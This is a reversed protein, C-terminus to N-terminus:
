EKGYIPTTNKVTKGNVKSYTTSIGQKTDHIVLQALGSREYMTKMVEGCYSCVSEGRVLIQMNQGSTLGEDYARQILAVEAHANKMTLNPNQSDVKSGAALTPKNQRQIDPRATQNTDFLYKGGINTEATVTIPAQAGKLTAGIRIDVQQLKALDDALQKSDGIGISKSAKSLKGIPILEGINTPIVMTSVAYTLSGVLAKPYVGLVEYNGSSAWDGIADDLKNKAQQAAKIDGKKYFIVLEDLAAKSKDDLYKKAAEIQLLAKDKFANNQIATSASNAAISVDYGAYASVTGAILQGYTEIKLKEQDSIFTPSRGDLLSEALVEGVAAGIARSGCEDQIAGAACASVAHALKHLFYNIDGLGKIETAMQGQVVGALGSLLAQEINNSLDGGDIATHVLTSGVSNTFNNIIRDSLLASDPKLNLVTGVQNLLGATVVSTVLGKVSDKSGLEKLTAAVDGGNNILSVSAQSALTAVAAQAGAGLAASGTASAVSTAAATGAGSTLVTVIIVILAAGAGTLGQSKYDWEKQTLILSNWDVDNRNLLDKLYENGPQNALKLAEEKVEVKYQDQEGIPIQVEIGGEAKFVPPTPGNFRPLQATETISGKDQMSQWVVSNSEKKLTESVLNSAGELFITGGSEINAGELYNFETGKLRTDFGAKTGVYNATLVAPLESVVDRTKTTNSTNYKIGLFSSKKTIDTTNLSVDKATLLNIDGGAQINIKGNLAELQTSYMDISNRNKGVMNPSNKEQSIININNAILGVSEGLSEESTINTITTKKKGYWTRKTETKTSKNFSNDVAVDFIINKYAEINIDKASSVLTGQLILNDTNQKGTTKITVGNTGNLTTAKIPSFWKYNNGSLAGQEYSDSYADVIISGKIRGQKVSNESDAIYKGNINHDVGDLTGAAELMLKGNLSNIDSGSISLGKNSILKIDGLNSTIKSGLHNYGSMSGTTFYNLINKYLGIENDFKEISYLYNHYKMRMSNVDKFLEAVLKDSLESESEAVFEGSNIKNALRIFINEAEYQLQAKEELNDQLYKEREKEINVISEKINDTHLNSFNNRIGDIILDGSTSVISVDKNSSLHAGELKVSEGYLNIGGHLTALKVVQESGNGANGGYGILTLADNKSILEIDGQAKINIKKPDITLANNTQISLDGDLSNLVEDNRLLDSGTSNLELSEAVNLSEGAELLIAGGNLKLNQSNINKGAIVSLTGQSDVKSERSSNINLNINNKSNLATHEGGLIIVGDLSLDDKAFVENNGAANLTTDTLTTKNLSSSVLISGQSSNIDTSLATVSGNGISAVNVGQAGLLISRNLGSNTLTVNKDAMLSLKGASSTAKLGNVTLNGALASVNINGGASLNSETNLILNHETATINLDKNSRLETDVIVGKGLLNIEDNATFKTSSIDVNGNSRIDLKGTFVTADPTNFWKVDEQAQINVAGVGNNNVLVQDLSVADNSSINVSGNGATDFRNTQFTVNKLSTKSSGEDLSLRVPDEKIAGKVANVHLVYTNTRLDFNARGNSDTYKSAIVENTSGDTITVLANPRTTLSLPYLRGKNQDIINISNDDSTSLTSNVINSKNESFINLGKKGYVIPSNQIDVDNDAFLNVVGNGALSAGSSIKLNNGADIFIDQSNNQISANNRILINNESSISISNFENNGEQIVHGTSIDVNRGSDLFLSGNTKMVGAILIDSNSTTSLSIVSDNTNTTRIDGLNRIQGDNTIVINQSAQIKGSNNIGLGKDTGVIYINNAYMGGLAKVDLAFTATNSNIDKPIISTSDESIENTGTIANLAQNAHVQANVEIAKAYIDVYDANNNNGGLGLNNVNSNVNIKGQDVVFQKLSGDENLQPKGTTLTAKNANIFGGGQINIGSPNAIIVDARQGAVELNGEFRSATPSNVENLIVRAEGTQLYPNAGVQGVIVSGAGGRSNNLVVGPQLVDFQNYVNHSVGNKPTQINVVPVNQGQQNQGVGISAQQTAVAAPDAKMQAYVPAISMFLSMSLVLSKVQWMQHFSQDIVERHQTSSKTQGATKTNSKVNEAVAIFMNKVKSFIIRYQNKNM